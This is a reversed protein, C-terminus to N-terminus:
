IIFELVKLTTRKNKNNITTSFFPKLSSRKRLCVDKWFCDSCCRRINVSVCFYVFVGVRPGMTVSNTTNPHHPQQQDNLFRTEFVVTKGLFPHTWVCVGSLTLLLVSVVFVPIPTGRAWVVLVSSCKLHFFLSPLPWPRSPAGRRHM